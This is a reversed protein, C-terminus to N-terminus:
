TPVVQAPQVADIIVKLVGVGLIFSIIPYESVLLAVNDGVVHKLEHRFIFLVISAVLVPHYTLIYKASGLVVKQVIQEMWGARCSTPCQLLALM